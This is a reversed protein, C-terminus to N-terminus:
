KLLRADRNTVTGHCGEGIRKRRGGSIRLYRRALRRRAFLEELEVALPIMRAPEAPQAIVDRTADLGLEELVLLTGKSDATRFM